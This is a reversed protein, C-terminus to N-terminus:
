EEFVGRVSECIGNIKGPPLDGHDSDKKLEVKLEDLSNVICFSWSDGRSALWERIYIKHGSGDSLLEAYICRNDNTYLDAVKTFSSLEQRTYEKGSGRTDLM